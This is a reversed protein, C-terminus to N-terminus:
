RQVTLSGVYKSKNDVIVVYFYTGDPIDQGLFIGETCRGAWDNKYDVSRYVRNGWRNFVEIAIKQSLTNQIVLNDNIGDNNPTFGEPIFTPRPALEIRTTESLSVDGNIVPDPKLGNTSRDQVKAGTVASSGEALAFNHFTGSNTVLRINIELEIKREEGGILRSAPLLLETDSKGNFSTNTKLNGFAILSKVTFETGAFAQSLNDKLSINEIANPGYNVLTFTFKVDYTGNIGDTISSVSKAVGIKANPDTLLIVSINVNANNVAYAQGDYGNWAFNTTGSWNLASQFTLKPLDLLPIEQGAIVNIGNLRLTGNLPLNIIKVKVLTNNDADTFKSTFDAAVFSIDTFGTGSKTIDSVVPPVNSPTVNISVTSAATAYATGDSANWRFNFTGSNGPEPVYTLGSIDGVPIEQGAVVDVGFLKLTGSPPLSVIQIKTLPNNDPDSFQSTFDSASFTVSQNGTYNRLVPTLVPPQNVAALTIVVNANLAAYGAGDNGNWSFSTIGNWGAFPVFTLGELDAVPIEQSATVATGYLRLSGNQPLSVVRIRTLPSNEPDSFKSKFDTDTFTITQGQNGSKPVNAVVPLDNVSTVTVTIQAPNSTLGTNDKITYSVPTATSAGSNYNAFPVFTVTGNTNATYTGEGAVVLTTKVGAGPDFDVSTPDITNNGDRDIDNAIVSFTISNDENTTVADAVAIPVDPVSTVTVTISAANSTLGGADNVTYSIPTATGAGSNYYQIPTFTVAGANNVTYTGQGSVTFTSQRGGTAPDLDVSAANITNNGNLDTDNTLVSFTVSANEATTAEDANAVPAVRPTVKITIAAPNSTLGTNDKVTYNVPTTTGVGSDYGTAPSFTVTGNNNAIYTGQLAVTFVTQTGPTAPDIDLTTIDITGAGDPDTDNAVVNFTVPTNAETSAADNVAVPPDDVPSIVINVAADSASYSNGDSASWAFSTNGSFNASPTFTINALETVLVEEGAVVANGSKKLTGNSSLTIIKIKNLPNSEVDLYKSTFDNSTFLVVQDETGTKDVNNVLPADNVPTITINVSANSVAYVTGDFANWNFATSNGNFNLAPTFTITSLDAFNIEEGALIAVDGRKLIGDSSSPLSIIKIKIISNGDIDTFKSTFDAASFPVITDENGTKSINAVLPADNVPQIDLILTKSDTLSGGTGLNGNDNVAITLTVDTNSDAVPTYTLGNASIFSNINALSGSLTLATSSGGVTVGSASTASLAGSSAPITLTVLVTATGADADAFSIGTLAKPTDETVNITAPLTAVPADNVATVTVNITASISEEIPVAGASGDDKITYSIATATGNFHVAPTFTVLGANSVTYTGDANTLTKQEGSVPPNLDISGLNLTYNGNADYDNSIISFTVPTDETTASVDNVAVPKVASSPPIVIDINRVEHLNIFGGTSAALGYSLQPPITANYILNVIPHHPTAVGGETIWVNIKYSNLGNPLIEIRAKRYGPSSSNFGPTRGDVKGEVNFAPTLTTTIARTLFEYNGAGNSTGYGDGRLTVNQRVKDAVGLTGEKKGGDNTAFNGFEDFGVGLFGKRLGPDGAYGAYGLSGGIGGIRFGPDPYGNAPDAPDSLVTADFLFFCIGDATETTPGGYSYYEFTVLLGKESPFVSTNRAFGSQNDTNETLRLYGNGEADGGPRGATLSAGGGLVTGVATSNKFSDTYPFQAYTNEGGLLIFCLLFGILFRM